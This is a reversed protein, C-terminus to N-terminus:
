LSWSLIGESKRPSSANRYAFRRWGRRRLSRCLPLTFGGRPFRYAALRNCGEGVQLTLHDCQWLGARLELRKLEHCSLKPELLRIEFKGSTVVLAGIIREGSSLGVRYEM